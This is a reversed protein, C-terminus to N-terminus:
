EDIPERNYAEIEYPNDRYGYKILWWLYKISFRIPGDREIQEIHVQEHRLLGQHRAHRRLVYITRWPMTIAALGFGDLLWRWPGSAIKITTLRATM